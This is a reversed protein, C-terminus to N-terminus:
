SEGGEKESAPAIAVASLAALGSVIIGPVYMAGMFLFMAVTSITGFSVCRRHSIRTRLNSVTASFSRMRERMSPRSAPITLAKMADPITLLATTFFVLVAASVTALLEQYYGTASGLFNPIAATNATDIHRCYQMGGSPTHTQQDPM